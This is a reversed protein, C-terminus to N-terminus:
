MACSKHGRHIGYGEFHPQPRSKDGPSLPDPTPSQNWAALNQPLLAPLGPDRNAGLGQEGGPARLRQQGESGEQSRDTRMAVCTSGM